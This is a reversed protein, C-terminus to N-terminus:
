EPLSTLEILHGHEPTPTFDINYLPFSQLWDHICDPWEAAILFPTRIFDELMLSDIERVTNLRYADIHLLQRSGKYLNYVTYTPSTIPDPIGLADGIGKVFTTKGSGLPGSLAIACDEPLAQVLHAALTRTQDPSHSTIGQSLESFISSM